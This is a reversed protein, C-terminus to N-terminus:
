GLAMARRAKTQTPRDRAIRCQELLKNQALEIGNDAARGEVLRQRQTDQLPPM